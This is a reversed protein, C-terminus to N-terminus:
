PPASSSLWDDILELFDFFDPFFDESRDLRPQSFVKEL